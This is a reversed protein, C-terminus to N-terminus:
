GNRHAPTPVYVLGCSGGGNNSGQVSSCYIDVVQGATLDLDVYGIYMSQRTSSGNFNFGQVSSGANVRIYCDINGSNGSSVTFFFRYIYHGTLPATLASGSWANGSGPPNSLTGATINPTSGSGAVQIFTV